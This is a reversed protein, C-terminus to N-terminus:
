KSLSFKILEIDEKARTTSVSNYKVISKTEPSYFYEAQVNKIRTGWKPNATARQIFKQIRFVQFSGAPTNMPENGVVEIM